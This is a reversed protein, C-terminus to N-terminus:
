VPNWPFHPSLECIDFLHFIGEQVNTIGLDEVCESALLYRQMKGKEKAIGLRRQEDRM